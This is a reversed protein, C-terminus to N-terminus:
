SSDVGSTALRRREDRCDGVSVEEAVAITQPFFPCGSGFQFWFVSYCDDYRADYSGIRTGEYTVNFSGPPSGDVQKTLGDDYEDFVSFVYCEDRALCDTRELRKGADKPAWPRISDWVERGESTNLMLVIDEPFEDLQVTFSFPDCDQVGNPLVPSPKEDCSSSSEVIKEQECQAGFQYWMTSFCYTGNYTDIVSSGFVLSFQGVGQETPKTLGDAYMDEIQFHYCLSPDLCITEAFTEGAHVPNWKHKFDWISEGSDSELRIIVDEPFEDHLLVFILPICDKVSQVPGTNVTPPESDATIEPGAVRCSRGAIRARVIETQCMEGFLYWASSFCGDEFGDYTAIMASGYTLNFMGPTGDLPAKTLGDSRLDSDYITFNYCDFPNLCIDRDFIQNAHQPGWPQEDWIVSGFADTLQIRSDEPFEDTLIYFQFGVCGVEKEVSSEYIEPREKCQGHASWKNSITMPCRDGFRFGKARYCGEISGDYYGLPSGQYDVRYWGAVGGTPVETLSCFETLM